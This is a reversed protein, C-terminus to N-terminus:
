GSRIKDILETLNRNALDQPHTTERAREFLPIAEAARPSKALACAVSFYFTQAKDRILTEM